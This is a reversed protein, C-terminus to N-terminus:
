RFGGRELYLAAERLIIPNDKLNGIGKNCQVCLLGRIAKTVHDHDVCFFNRKTGPDSTHCVACCGSQNALMQNYDEESIGYLRKLCCRRGSTVYKRANLAKLKEPNKKRYERQYAVNQERHAVRRAAMCYRCENNLGDKRAKNKYFFSPDLYLGCQGSCLKEHFEPM